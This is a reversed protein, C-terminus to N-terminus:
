CPTPNWLFNHPQSQGECIRFILNEL